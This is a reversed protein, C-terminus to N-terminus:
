LIRECLESFSLYLQTAHFVSKEQAIRTRSVDCNKYPSCVVAPARACCVRLCTEDNGHMSKDPQASVNKLCSPM